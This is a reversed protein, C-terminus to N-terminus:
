EASRKPARSRVRPNPERPLADLGDALTVDWESWDEDAAVMARATEEWSLRVRPDLAHDRIGKPEEPRM